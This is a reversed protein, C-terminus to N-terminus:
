YGNAKMRENIFCRIPEVKFSHISNIYLKEPMSKGFWHTHYIARLLQFQKMGPTYHSTVKAQKLGAPLLFKTSFVELIGAIFTTPKRQYYIMAKGSQPALLFFLLLLSNIQKSNTMYSFSLGKMLGKFHLHLGLYFDGSNTGIHFSTNEPLVFEM